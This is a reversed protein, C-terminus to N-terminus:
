QGNMGMRCAERWVGARECLTIRAEADVSRLINGVGAYCHEHYTSPLAACVDFADALKEPMTAFRDLYFVVVGDVCASRQGAEPLALCRSARADQEPLFGAVSSGYSHFCAAQNEPPAKACLSAMNGLREDGSGQVASLQFTYCVNRYAPGVLRCPYWPDGEKAYTSVHPSLQSSPVNEMFVGGYCNIREGETPFADCLELSYPLENNTVFMLAHGIGHVCQSYALSDDPTAEACARLINRTMREESTNERANAILYGEAGGHYVAGFCVFDDAVEFVKGLDGYRRYAGQALHHMLDHCDPVRKSAEVIDGFAFRAMLEDAAARYCAYASEATTRDSECARIADTIRGTLADIDVPVAAHTFPALLPAVLARLQVLFNSADFASAAHAAPAHFLFLVLM